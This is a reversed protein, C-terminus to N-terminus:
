IRKVCEKHFIYLDTQLFQIHINRSLPNIPVSDIM